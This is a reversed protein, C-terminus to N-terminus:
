PDLAMPVPIEGKARSRGILDSSSPIISMCAYNAVFSSAAEIARSEECANPIVNNKHKVHLM